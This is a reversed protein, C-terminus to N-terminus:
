GRKYWQITHMKAGPEPTEPLWDNAVVLCQLHQRGAHKGRKQVRVGIVSYRRGTGTQIIDGQAVQDLLDVYIRVVAGVPATM